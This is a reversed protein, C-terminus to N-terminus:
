DRSQHTMGLLEELLQAAGQMQKLEDGTAYRLKIDMDSLSERLYRKLFTSTNMEDKLLGLEERTVQNLWM